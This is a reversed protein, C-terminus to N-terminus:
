LAPKINPNLRFLNGPDYRKKVAALRSYQEAYASRVRSDEDDNLMNVYTGSSYPSLVSWFSQVWRSVPERWIDVTTGCNECTVIM